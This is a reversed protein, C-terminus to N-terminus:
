KMILEKLLILKDLVKYPNVFAGSNDAVVLRTEAQIM